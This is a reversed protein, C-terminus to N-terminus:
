WCKTGRPQCHDGCNIGGNCRLTSVCKHQPTCREFDGCGGCDMHHGCTDSVTGCQWTAPCSVGSPVITINVPAFGQAQALGNGLEGDVDNGWCTLTTSTLACVHQAGVVVKGASAVGSPTRALIDLSSSSLSVQGYGNAGWCSVVGAPSVECANSDGQARVTGAATPVLTPSTAPQEDGITAVGYRNIGWCLTTATGADDAREVACFTGHGGGVLSTVNAPLAAPSLQTEGDNSNGASGQGLQGQSNSGVCDVEGTRRLVCTTSGAAAIQAVDTVGTMQVAVDSTSGINGDGLQGLADSGWCWATGDAKWACAHADGYAIGVAGTLTGAADHVPTPTGWSGGGLQQGWCSVTTDGLLACAGSPGAAIQKANTVGLAAPATVIGDLPLTTDLSDHGLPYYPAGNFGWGWVSGDLKVVYTTHGRAAVDLAQCSTLAASTSATPGEAERVGDGPSSAASGCAAVCLGTAALSLAAALGFRNMSAYSLSSM